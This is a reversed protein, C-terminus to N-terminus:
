RALQDRVWTHFMHVYYEEPMLVGAEHRTSHLGLQNLACAEADQDLVMTAFDTVNALDFKPMQLTEPPLLWESHLETLEPGLPLVRVVRVYDVHGVVFVSPLNTVYTQGARQEKQTLVEFRAGHVEGDMSWTQANLRLGGKFKPDPDDAHDAWDPDDGEAIISRGYIPVLESLEPHLNPCHLCESFNEWFVKWNCAVTKQYVHASVLDDLPWNALGANDREFTGDFACANEGALNIFVFGGWEELAIDYLPYDSLKFGDPMALSPTRVLNGSTSYAWNHYPCTILKSKLQGTEQTCLVSGRHRCTNHYARLEGNEDRLLLVKQTGITFTRFSLLRELSSARCLYIWNKYWITSLEAAYHAPDVYHNSPLTPEAQILGNYGAIKKTNVNM